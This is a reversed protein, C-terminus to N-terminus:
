TKITCIVCEFHKRRTSLIYSTKPQPYFFKYLSLSFSSSFNSNNALFISKSLMDHTSNLIVNSLAIQLVPFLFVFICTLYYIAFYYTKLLESPFCFRPFHNQQLDTELNETRKVIQM